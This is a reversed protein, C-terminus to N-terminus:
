ILRNQWDEVIGEPTGEWPKIKTFGQLRTTDLNVIPITSPTAPRPTWALGARDLVEGMQVCGPAAVNLVPPLSTAGALTALTRALAHPGIYSRQPTTGDPLQDLAFGPRWDGLIADAGAVNGLRLSTNPHAHAAAAHEMALKTAGYDSLPAVTGDESLSGPQRGYVAASSFLLVHGAGVDRAADLTRLALDTNGDMPEANTNTIGAMCIVADAGSLCARLADRDRIDVETRNVWRAPRPFLPRLLQGLKGGAGLVVIDM